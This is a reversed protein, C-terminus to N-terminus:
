QLSATQVQSLTFAASCNLGSHQKKSHDTIEREPPMQSISQRQNPHFEVEKRGGGAVRLLTKHGIHKLTHVSFQNFHIKMKVMFSAM